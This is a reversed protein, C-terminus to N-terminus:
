AARQRLYVARGNVRAMRVEGERILAGCERRIEEAPMRLAQALEALSASARDELIALIRGQATGIDRAQQIPSSTTSREGSTAYRTMAGTGSRIVRGEEILRKLASRTSFESISLRRRIEGLALPQAQEAMHRFIAERRELAAKAVTARKKRRRRPKARAAPSGAAPEANGEEVEFVAAVQDLRLLERDRREEVEKIGASAWQRIKRRQVGVVDLVAARSSPSEPAM